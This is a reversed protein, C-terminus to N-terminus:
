NTSRCSLKREKDRSSFFGEIVEPLDALAVLAVLAALVALVVDM